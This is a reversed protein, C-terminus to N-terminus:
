YICEPDNPDDPNYKVGIYGSDGFYIEEPYKYKELYEEALKDTLGTFNEGTDNESCIFADDAIFTPYTGDNALFIRNPRIPSRLLAEEHCILNVPPDYSLQLVEILGGVEAQMSALDNDVDKIYALKGVELKVTKM